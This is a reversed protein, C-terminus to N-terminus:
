MDYVEFLGGPPKNVEPVELHSNIGPFPMNSPLKLFKQLVHLISLENDCGRKEM